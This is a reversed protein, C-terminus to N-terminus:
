MHLGYMPVKVLFATIGVLFAFFRSAMLGSLSLFGFIVSGKRYFVCLIFALLPM